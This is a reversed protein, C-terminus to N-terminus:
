PGPELEDYISALIELLEAAKDTVTYYGQGRSVLLGAVTVTGLRARFLWIPLSPKHAWQRPQRTEGLKDPARQSGRYLQKRAGNSSQTSIIRTGQVPQTTTRTETKTATTSGRARKNM